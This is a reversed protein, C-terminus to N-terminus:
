ASVLWGRGDVRPACVGGLTIRDGGVPPSVEHWWRAGPHILLSGEAVRYTRVDAEPPQPQNSATLTPMVRLAGGAPTTQVMLYWVLQRDLDAVQRLARYAESEPYRDRHLPAGCGEPMCRISALFGDDVVDLPAATLARLAALVADHVRTGLPGLADWLARNRARHVAPDPGRPDAPSPGLMAGWQRVPGLPSDPEAIAHRALTPLRDLLERRTGPDLM